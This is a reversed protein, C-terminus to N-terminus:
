GATGRFAVLLILKEYGKFQREATDGSFSNLKELHSIYDDNGSFVTRTFDFDQAESKTFASLFTWTAQYRSDATIVNAVTQSGDSVTRLQEFIGGEAASGYIVTSGPTLNPSISDSSFLTGAKSYTGDPLYQLYRESDTVNPVTLVPHHINTEEVTLWTVFDSNQAKIRDFAASLDDSM